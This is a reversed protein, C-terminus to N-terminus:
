EARESCEEEGVRGSGALGNGGVGDRSLEPKSRKLTSGAPTPHLHTPSVSFFKARMM